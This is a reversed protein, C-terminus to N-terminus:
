IVQSNAMINKMLNLSNLRNHIFKKYFETFSLTVMKFKPTFKLHDLLTGPCYIYWCKPLLSYFKEIFFLYRVKEGITYVLKICWPFMYRLIFTSEDYRFKRSASVPFIGTNSIKTHFLKWSCVLEFWFNEASKM